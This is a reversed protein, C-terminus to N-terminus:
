KGFFLDFVNYDESVNRDYFESYGCNECSVVIFDNSETDFMKSVGPGNMTVEKMGAKTSGCKVCGKEAM